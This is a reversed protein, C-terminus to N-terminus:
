FDSYDVVRRIPWQFSTNLYDIAFQSLPSKWWVFFAISAVAIKLRSVSPFIVRCFVPLVIFGAVDSLKGTLWNGYEYKWYFDNLLLLILSSIFVPHLLLSAKAPKM